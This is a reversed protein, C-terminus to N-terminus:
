QFILKETFLVTNSQLIFFFYIGAPLASKSIYIEEQSIGTQSLVPEGKMNRILIDVKTGTQRNLFVTTGSVAPNPYVLPKGTYGPYKVEITDSYYYSVFNLRYYAKLSGFPGRDTFSYFTEEQLGCIGAIQGVKEFTIGDTSREVSIDSCQNGGELVWNLKVNNGSRFASFSRASQSYSGGASVLIILASVLVAKM